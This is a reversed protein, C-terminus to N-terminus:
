NFLELYIWVVITAMYIKLHTTRHKAQGDVSSQGGNGDVAM